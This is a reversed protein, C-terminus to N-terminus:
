QIIQMSMLDTALLFLAGSKLSRKSIPVSRITYTKQTKLSPTVIYRPLGQLWFLKNCECEYIKNDKVLWIVVSDFHHSFKMLEIERSIDEAHALVILELDRYTYQM